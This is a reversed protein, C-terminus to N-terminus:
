VTRNHEAGILGLHYWRNLTIIDFTTAFSDKLDDFKLSYDEINHIFLNRGIISFTFIFSFM